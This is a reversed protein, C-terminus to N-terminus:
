GISLTLDPSCDCYWQYGTFKKAVEDYREKMAEGCKPCIPKKKKEKMMYLNFYYYLKIIEM